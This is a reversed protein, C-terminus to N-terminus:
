WGGGHMVYICIPQEQDVGNDIGKLYHDFFRLHEGFFRAETQSTDEGFYKWFPGEPPEHYSPCILLKSPNSDAMTCYLEFSGRTFGDFWGGIHYIPIGSKMIGPVHASPSLEYMTNDLPIPGDIFRCDPKSAWEHYDYNKEHEATAKYYLHERESNDRYTPPFGDDLFTGNGNVDVPIEDLWEGDGDEDVAPKTPRAGHDPLYCNRTILRM